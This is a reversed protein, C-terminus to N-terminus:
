RSQNSTPELIQSAFMGIREAMRPASLVSIHWAM